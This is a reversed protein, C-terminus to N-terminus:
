EIQIPPLAREPAMGVTLIGYTMPPMMRPIMGAVRAIITAIPKIPLKIIVLKDQAKRTLWAGIM